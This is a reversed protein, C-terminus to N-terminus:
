SIGGGSAPDITEPPVPQVEPPPPAQAFPLDNKRARLDFYMVVTFVPTLLLSLLSTIGTGIGIGPGVAKMAERLAQPDPEGGARGIATFMEKYFGLMSGFALPLSVIYIVFQSLMSLLILIGFTRWWYGQVLTWSQRLADVPSLDEVAVATLSFYWRYIVYILVPMAVIISLTILFFLLGRSDIVVSLTWLFFGLVFAGGIVILYKLLGQGIGYLWKMYFTEQVAQNLSVPEGMMEKGVIYSITIEALLTGLAFVLISVIFLVIDGLFMSFFQSSLQSQGFSGTSSLGMDAISSYFNDAAITILVVPIVLFIAAVILNRVITRGIMAFTREFINGLTMPLIQSSM